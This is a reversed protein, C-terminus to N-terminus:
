DEVEDFVVSPYLIVQNQQPYPIKFLVVEGDNSIFHILKMTSFIINHTNMWERQRVVAKFRQTADERGGDGELDQHGSKEESKIFGGIGHKLKSVIEHLKLQKESCPFYYILALKFHM